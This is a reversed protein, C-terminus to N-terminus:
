LHGCQKGFRWAVVWDANAAVYYASLCGFLASLGVHTEIDLPEPDLQNGM